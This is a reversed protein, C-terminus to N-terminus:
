IPLHISPHYTGTRMCEMDFEYLAMKGLSKGYQGMFFAFANPSALFIHLKGMREKTSRMTNITSVLQEVAHLIHNGDRIATGSPGGSIDAHFVRSINPLESKVFEEVQRSSDHTINISLVQDGEDDKLRIERVPQWCSESSDFPITRDPRFPIRGANRTKQIVSIDVGTKNDMLYGLTFASSLHTDLHLLVPLNKAITTDAFKQLAPLIDSPWLDHEKVYRGEFHHCLCLLDETEFEITEAGKMFTRVGARHIKQVDLTSTSVWLKEEKLVIELSDKDFEKKGENHLKFILDNYGDVRTENSIPKMNRAAALALPLTDNRTNEPDASHRIRFQSLIKELDGDSVSLHERWLKRVKGTQSRDTTGDFLKKLNIAGSGDLLKALVDNKDIGWTNLIIYQSQDYEEPSQLYNKHLKQLLSETVAGIFEPKTLAMATFQNAQDTHYKVQYFKRHILKGRSDRKGSSSYYVVVDDFGPAGDKEWSVRTVNRGEIFLECAKTWFFASQFDFGNKIALISDAM